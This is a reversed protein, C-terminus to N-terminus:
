EARKGLDAELSCLGDSCVEEKYISHATGSIGFPLYLYLNNSRM